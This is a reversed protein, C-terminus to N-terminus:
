LCKRARVGRVNEEESINSPCATLIGLNALQDILDKILIVLRSAVVDVKDAAEFISDFVFPLAQYILLKGYGTVLNVFVDIKQLFQVVADTQYPKLERIGFTQTM